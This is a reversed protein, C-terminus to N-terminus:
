RSFSDKANLLHDEATRNKERGKRGTDPRLYIDKWLIKFSLKPQDRGLTSEPIITPKKQKEPPKGSPCESIIIEPSL